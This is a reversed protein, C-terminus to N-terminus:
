GCQGGGVGFYDASQEREELEKHGVLLRGFHTQPVDRRDERREEKPRRLGIVGALEQSHIFLLCLPELEEKVQALEM